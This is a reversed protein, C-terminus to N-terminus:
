YAMANSECDRCDLDGTRNLALHLVVYERLRTLSLSAMIEDAIQEPEGARDPDIGFSGDILQAAIDIYSFPTPRWERQGDLGGSAGDVIVITRYCSNCWTRPGSLHGL